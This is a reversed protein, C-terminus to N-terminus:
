RNRRWLLFGLPLGALLLAYPALSRESVETGHSVLKGRDLRRQVERAVGGVDGERFVPARISRAFSEFTATSDPDTRYTRDVPLEPRFIREEPHWYRVFVLDIRPPRRFAAFASAAVPLTEGDTFVVAVRRRAQQSYFNHTKLVTLAGLATQLAGSGTDPPPREVGVARELTTNFVGASPTPFVHPVLRNTLSAVGVPVDRLRARVRAADSRVREIRNAGRPSQSALMSRTIDVIFLVEADTRVRLDSRTLLVPQASAVAVLSAFLVIASAVLVQSRRRRPELRLARRVDASRRQFRLFALMPVVVAVASLVALPHVFVIKM